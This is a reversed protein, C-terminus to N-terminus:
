ASTNFPPSVPVGTSETTAAVHTAVSPLGPPEFRFTVAVHPPTSSFGNKLRVCAKKCPNVPLQDLTEGVATAALPESGYEARKAPTVELM